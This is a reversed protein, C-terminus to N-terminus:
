CNILVMTGKITINGGSDITISGGGCSLKIEETAELVIKPSSLSIQSGANVSHKMGVNIMQAIGVNVMRLAGVTLEQAAGINIMENIGVTQTRTMGITLVENSGITTDRNNGVKISENAAVEETRNAGIKIKENAVVEETRNNGITIKEDVVVKETRCNRVEITENNEVVTSMDKQAHITIGESTNTDNVSIENYGSGGISRSKFGMNVAGAPLAYPATLEANYVRGTIIPRDPDGELFDVIVEQGVRPISVTGWNRGAWPQSVRIWCSDDGNKRGYRDWYFHLKVRAHEETHPKDMELGVVLATQSGPVVPRPAARQPRFSLEAPIAAFSNSYHFEGADEGVRYSSDSARHHVGTLMYKKNLDGAYHKALEFSFGAKLDRCDSAGTFIKEVAQEAELRLKAYREGEKVTKYKGPYDYHQPSPKEGAEARLDTRPTLFNYDNFVFQQTQAVRTREIASIVDEKLSSTSQPDFEIPTDRCPKVPARTDALVLFAKPEDHRFFYFIGEIELLRAVYALDSEKYQVCYEREPYELVTKWESEFNPYRALVQKVIEPVTVNQWIRCDTTLSLFWLRHSAEIDYVTFGQVRDTLRVSRVVGHFYRKTGDLMLLTVRIETWLLSDVDTDSNPCLVRCRLVYPESIVEQCEFEELLLADPPLITEIRLPRTAQTFGM